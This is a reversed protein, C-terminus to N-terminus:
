VEVYKTETYPYMRDLVMTYGCNDCVHIYKDGTESLLGPKYEMYGDGCLDCGYEVHYTKAEWKIEM